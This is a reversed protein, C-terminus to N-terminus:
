EDKHRTTTRHGCIVLIPGQFYLKEIGANGRRRCEKRRRKWGRIVTLLFKPLILLPIFTFM